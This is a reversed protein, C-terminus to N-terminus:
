LHARVLQSPATEAAPLDMTKLYQLSARASDPTRTDTLFVAVVDTRAIFRLNVDSWLLFPTGRLRKAQLRDPLLMKIKVPDFYIGPAHIMLFLDSRAWCLAAGRVDDAPFVHDFLDSLSAAPVTFKEQLYHRIDAQGDPLPFGCTARYVAHSRFTRELWEAPLKYLHRLYAPQVTIAALLDEHSNFQQVDKAVFEAILADLDTVSVHPSKPTLKRSQMLAMAADRHVILPSDETFGSIPSGEQDVVAMDVDPPQRDDYTPDALVQYTNYISIATCEYPIATNDTSDDVLTCPTLGEPPATPGAHQTVGRRSAQVLKWTADSSSVTDLIMSKKQINAHTSTVGSALTPTSVVSPAPSSSVTPSIAPSPSSEGDGMNADGSSTDDVDHLSSDDASGMSKDGDDAADPAPASAVKRLHPPKVRNFKRTRHQVFCPKDDPHFYIERLPEGNELFIGTPCKKDNFYVTRDRSKLEGSVFTPTILVPRAGCDVFWDYIVRDPVDSPLRTLEVYYLQDYKSHKRITAKTGCITLQIGGLSHLAAESTCMFGIGHNPIRVFDRLSARHTKWTEPQSGNALSGLIEDLNRETAVTAAPIWMRACDDASVPTPLSSSAKFFRDDDTSAIDDLIDYSASFLSDDPVFRRPVARRPKAATASTTAPASSM